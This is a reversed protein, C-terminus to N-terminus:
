SRLRMSNGVVALSSASMAIGAVLPTVLGAFALPIVIANYALAWSLNQRQIRRAKRAIGAAAALDAPSDSLLIADANLQALDAGGGMAVAVDAQAMVPADNIGDGVMAVRAGNSQLERVFALKREPTAAGESHGIGLAAAFRAVVGAQDGSLLHVKLGRAQLERVAGAAEARAGDEFFFVAIWGNADGLWTTTAEVAAPRPAPPSQLLGVWEARGMRVRRGQVMAEVGLGAFNRHMAAEPAAEGRFATALAADIPHSSLKALAAALGFAQQRTGGLVDSRALRPRGETLTGTKDFVIDTVGALREIAGARTVIFNRQAMAGSAATLATPTALALACPCTVVLVSVAIWIARQPDDNWQLVVAAAVAVLICAVFAGAARQAAAVWPPREDLARQMMREIAALSTESGVRQATFTFAPGSNISGCLISDGPRKVVPRSEGTLWAESVTADQTGELIGDAAVSAGNRVTVRDGVAIGPDKARARALHQLSRSAKARALLELYRGGLLLFVFMTVSDFYVPGQGTITAWASAAFAVLIGLAVPLDMGPRRARLERRAGALFPSGSYAVVPVTLLLGAWRMLSEIDAPMEGADAVYAPFAYMMVQMMGLGAVWLRRMLARRESSEVTAIRSEDYPWSEYGVARIVAHLARLSFAPGRIRARRLGYNVTVASVGEVKAVAHEVLWACAACHLGELLLEVELSGDPAVKVVRSALERDDVWAPVAGPAQAPAAAAERLRYYEGLGLGGIAAAVSECGTCCYAHGAPTALGCHACGHATDM